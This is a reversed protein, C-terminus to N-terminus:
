VNTAVALPPVSWPLLAPNLMVGPDAVFSANVAGGGVVTAPLAM